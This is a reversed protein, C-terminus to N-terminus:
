LLSNYIYMYIIQIKIKTKNKTTSTTITTALSKRACFLLHNIWPCSLSVCKSLPLLDSDSLFSLNELLKIRNTDTSVRSTPLLLLLLLLLLLWIRFVLWVKGGLPVVIVFCCHHNVLESCNGKRNTGTFFKVKKMENGHLYLQVTSSSSIHIKEGKEFLLLFIKKFLLSSLFLVTLLYGTCEWKKGKEYIWRTRETNYENPLSGDNKKQDNEIQLM